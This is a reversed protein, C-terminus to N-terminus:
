KHPWHQWNLVASPRKSHLEVFPIKILEWRSQIVWLIKSSVLLGCMPRQEWVPWYISVKNLGVKRNWGHDGCIYSNLDDSPPPGTINSWMWLVDCVCVTKSSRLSDSFLFFPRPICIQPLVSQSLFQWLDNIDDCWWVTATIQQVHKTSHLPLLLSLSVEKIWYDARRIIQTYSAVGERM